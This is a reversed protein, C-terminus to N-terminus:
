NEKDTVTLFNKLRSPHAEGAIKMIAIEQSRTVQGSLTVEGNSVTIDVGAIKNLALASEIAAKLRLDGASMEAPKNNGAKVTMHDEVKKVGEIHKVANLAATKTTEDAVEGKMIVVGEKVEVTINKDIVSTTSQVAETIDKEKKEENCAALLYLSLLFFCASKCSVFHRTM